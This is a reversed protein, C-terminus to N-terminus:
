CRRRARWRPPWSASSPRSATRFRSASAIARDLELRADDVANQANTVELREEGTHYHLQAERGAEIKADIVGETLRLSPLVPGVGNKKVTM